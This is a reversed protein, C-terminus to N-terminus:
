SKPISGAINLLLPEVEKALADAKATEGEDRYIQLLFWRPLLKAPEIWDEKWNTLDLTRGARLFAEEAKAPRHLGSYVLGAVIMDWYFSLDGEGLSATRLRVMEDYTAAATDAEGRCAHVLALGLYGSRVMQQDRLESAQKRLEEYRQQALTLDGQEFATSAATSKERLMREEPAQARCSAFPIVALAFGLVIQFSWSWKRKL